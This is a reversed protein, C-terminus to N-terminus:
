WVDLHICIAIPHPPLSQIHRFIKNTKGCDGFFHSIFPRAAITPIENKTIAESHSTMQPADRHAM